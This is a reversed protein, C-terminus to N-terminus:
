CDDDDEGHLTGALLDQAEPTKQRAKREQLEQSIRGIRCVREYIEAAQRSPYDIGMIRFVSEISTSGEPPGIIWNWVAIALHSLPDLEGAITDPCDRCRFAEPELDSNHITRGHGDALNGKLFSQRCTECNSKLDLKLRIHADFPKANRTVGPLMTM